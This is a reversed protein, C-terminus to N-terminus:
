AENATITIELVGMSEAVETVLFLEGDLRLIEDKVPKRALDGAEVYVLVEEIFVGESYEAATKPQRERIVDRDVVALVDGGNINHWDAFEFPNIFVRKIDAAVAKKFASM